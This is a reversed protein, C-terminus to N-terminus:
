WLTRRHGTRYGDKSKKFVSVQYLFTFLFSAKTGASALVNTDVGMNEHATTGDPKLADVRWSLQNLHDLRRLMVLKQM